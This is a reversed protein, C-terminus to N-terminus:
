SQSCHIAPRKRITKQNYSGCYQLNIVFNPCSYVSMATTADPVVLMDSQDINQYGRISSGDFGFGDTFSSLELEHPPVSFHQWMGPMDVFKVDVMKVKHDKAAKLVDAPTNCKLDM